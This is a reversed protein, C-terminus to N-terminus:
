GQIYTKRSFLSVTYAHITSSHETFEDIPLGNITTETVAFASNLRLYLSKHYPHFGCFRLFIYNKKLNHRLIIYMGMTGNM